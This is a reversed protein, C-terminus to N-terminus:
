TGGSRKIAPECSSDLSGQMDKVKNGCQTDILKNILEDYTEGKRGQYKLRERTRTNVLITSKSM